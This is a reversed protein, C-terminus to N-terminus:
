SPLLSDAHEDCVHELQTKLSEIKLDKTESKQRWRNVEQKKNRLQETQEEVRDQLEESDCELDSVKDILEDEWTQNDLGFRGFAGSTKGNMCARGLECLTRNKGLVGSDVYFDGLVELIGQERNLLQTFHRDLDLALADDAM